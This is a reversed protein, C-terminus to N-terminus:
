ACLYQQYIKNKASVFDPQMNVPMVGPVTLSGFYIMPQGIKVVFWGLMELSRLARHDMSIVGYSLDLALAAKYSAKYLGWSIKQSSYKKKVALAGIEFSKGSLVDKILGECSPYFNNSWENFTTFPMGINLRITGVVENIGNIAVIYMSSDDHEFPIIRDTYPSGLYGMQLYVDHHLHKAAVIMENSTAVTYIIKDSSDTKKM